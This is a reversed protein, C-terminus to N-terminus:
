AAVSEEQYPSRWAAYDSAATGALRVRTDIPQISGPEGQAMGVLLPVIAIALGLVM